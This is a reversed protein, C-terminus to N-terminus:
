FTLTVSSSTGASSAITIAVSILNSSSGGSINFTQTYLFQGGVGASSSGQFWTVAESQISQSFTSQTLQYGSQATFTFTATTLDRTTAIGSVAITFPNGSVTLAPANLFPASASNTFSVHAASPTYTFQNGGSPTITIVGTSFSCTGAVSGAAVTLQNSEQQGAPVTATAPTSIVQCDYSGPSAAANTVGAPAFTPNVAIVAANGLSQPLSAQITAQNAGPLPQLASGVTALSVADQVITFSSDSSVPPNGNTSLSFDLQYNGAALGSLSIPAFYCTDSSGSYATLNGSASSGQITAQVTSNTPTGLFGAWPYITGSSLFYTSPSPATCNSNPSAAALVTAPENVLFTDLDGFSTTGAAATGVTIAGQKPGGTTNPSVSYILTGSGSGTQGSTIAVGTGTVSASWICGSPENITITGTGGSLGFVAGAPGLSLSCSSSSGAQTVTVTIGAVALTGTRSSSSMNAAVSFAVTGNGSGSAGSTITIFSANSTATWTCGSSTTVVISDNVGSAPENVSIASLQYTCSSPTVTLNFTVSFAGILATVTAAGSGAGATVTISAQGDSDTIVSTSSLTIPGTSSFSVTVSPLPGSTGSVQVVLPSAFPSGTTANQLNGSVIVLATPTSAVEDVTLLTGDTYGTPSGGISPPFPQTGVSAVAIYDTRTGTLSNAAANLIASGTSGSSTQSAITIWSTDSVSVSSPCSPTATSKSWNISFGGGAAPIQLPGPASFGSQGIPLWTALGSINFGSSSCGSSQSLLRSLGFGTLLIITAAACCATRYAVRWSLSRTTM